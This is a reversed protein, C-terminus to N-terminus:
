PTMCGASELGFHTSAACWRSITWRRISFCADATRTHSGERRHWREPMRFPAAAFHVYTPLAALAGSPDSPVFVAAYFLASGNFQNIANAGFSHIESVQGSMQPQNSQDNFTPGLPSTYTPQFGNDRLIRVYGRDNPGITHDVRASWQYEKNSNPPTTRFQLACPTGSPLGTFSQCGGNAVPSPGTAGPANNYIAFLKNYFGLEDAHGTATLNALTASQFQASPILTLTSNTPLVNRLGEYDVDFFTHDKWIPGGVGTQWENFNNFPTPEGSQNSFFQNANLARGNWMYIADGHFQNTGSKTIYAIQAGAYQGYQASYANTIVNAEAIDNLGLLLNSAGSSNLNLFPDNYNQGNVTFLNSTGPMGNASFNGYGSQTNMVVGPATQAIYSLDGGPNPMNAVTGANYNTAVDANETQLVTSGETVTVQQSAGAVQLQFNSASPQGATVV